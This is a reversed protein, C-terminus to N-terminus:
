DHVDGRRLVWDNDDRAEGARREGVFRDGASEAAVAILHEDVLQRAETEAVDTVGGSCETVVDRL